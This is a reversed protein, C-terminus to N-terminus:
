RGASDASREAQFTGQERCQPAMRECMRKAVDKLNLDRRGLWGTRRWRTVYSARKFVARYRSTECAGVAAQDCEVLLADSEFPLVVADFAAISVLQHRECGVLEDTTKQDMHQRAAKVADAMIAQQGLSDAGFPSRIDHASM